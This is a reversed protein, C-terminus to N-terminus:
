AEESARQVLAIIKGGRVEYVVLMALERDGDEEKRGGYGREWFEIRSEKWRKGLREEGRRVQELSSEIGSLNSAASPHYTSQSLRPSPISTLFSTTRSAKLPIPRDSSIMICSLHYILSSYAEALM